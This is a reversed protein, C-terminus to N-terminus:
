RQKDSDEELSYRFDCHSAGQMITQTRKLKIKPNYGDCFTADRNCSLLHGIEGLGMDKYMRAYACDLMDYELNKSTKTIMNKKLAGGMEWLDSLNAFDSLGPENGTKIKHKTRFETGQEVSSNIVAISIVEQAEVKGHREVLVDYINKIMAAEIRRKELMALLTPNTNTKPSSM